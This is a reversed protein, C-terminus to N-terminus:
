EQGAPKGDLFALVQREKEIEESCFIWLHYSELGMITMGAAFVAWFNEPLKGSFHYFVYFGTLYGVHGVGGYKGSGSMMRSLILIIASFIYILLASSIMNVSPPKGLATLLKEPLSPFFVFNNLAAISLLIFLATSLLETTFKRHLKRINVITDRRLQVHNQRFDPPENKETLRNVGGKEM